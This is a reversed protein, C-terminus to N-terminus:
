RIDPNVDDSKKDVAKPPWLLGYSEAGRKSLDKHHLKHARVVRQVFRNRAVWKNGVRRHILVDHFVFYVLGYLTIGLGIWLKFDIDAAGKIVLAAAVSAFFISFVDNLEFGSRKPFHHSKHVNWLPGHFLYKHVAYSFAEMGCFTLLLVLLNM